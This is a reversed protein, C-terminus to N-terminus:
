LARKSFVLRTAVNQHPCPHHHHHPSQDTSVSRDWHCGADCSDVVSPNRNKEKFGVPSSIGHRNRNCLETHREGGVIGTNKKAQTEQAGQLLRPEEPEEKNLSGIKSSISSIGAAEALIVYLVSVCELNVAYGQLLLMQKSRVFRHKKGSHQNSIVYVSVGFVHARRGFVPAVHIQIVATHIVGPIGPDEHHEVGVLDVGLVQYVKMSKM